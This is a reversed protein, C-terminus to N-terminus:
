TDEGTGGGQESLVEVHLTTSKRESNNGIKGADIADKANQARYGTLNNQKEMQGDDMEFIPETNHAFKGSKLGKRTIGTIACWAANTARCRRTFKKGQLLSLKDSGSISLIVYYPDDYCPSVKASRCIGTFITTSASNEGARIVVDGGAIRSSTGAPIKLSADFTSVQGRQKRVNFSQVFPTSVTIGGVSVTARCKVRQIAM